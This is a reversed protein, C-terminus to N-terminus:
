AARRQNQRNAYRQLWLVVDERIAVFGIGGFAVMILLLPRLRPASQFLVAGLVMLSCMQAARSGTCVVGALTLFPVLRWWAPGRRNWSQVAAEIAWPLLMAFTLGFYISHTQPGYARKLGWRLDNEGTDPGAEGDFWPRGLVLEMPNRKTAAEVLAYVALLTICVCFTPLISEIDRRSKLFFRGVLYPFVLDRFPEFPALPTVSAWVFQSITIALVTFLIALDSLRWGGGSQAGYHQLLVGILYAAACFTRPDFRVGGVHFLMWPPALFLVVVWPPRGGNILGSTFILRLTILFGGACLVWMLIKDM